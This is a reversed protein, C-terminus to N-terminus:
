NCKLHRINTIKYNANCVTIATSGGSGFEQVITISLTQPNDCRSYM